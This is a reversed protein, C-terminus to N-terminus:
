LRSLMTIGSVIAVIPGHVNLLQVLKVVTNKLPFAGVALELANLLTAEPHLATMEGVAVPNGAAPYVHFPSITSTFDHCLGYHM